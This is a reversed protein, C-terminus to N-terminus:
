PQGQPVALRLEATSAAPLDLREGTDITFGIGYERAVTALRLYADSVLFGTQLGDPDGIAAVVYPSSVPQDDVLMAGGAQRITTGPALRVGGVSMAEAGTAWLSNVVAQLDRDLVTGRQVAVEGTDEADLVATDTVTVTVGPGSVASAAALTNLQELERLASRGLADGDLAQVRAQEVDQALLMQQQALQAGTDQATRVEALLGARVQDALPAQESARVAAGGLALGVLVAGLVTWRAPHPHHGTRAAAAYGPDLHDALLSTLLSPAPNRRVDPRAPPTSM